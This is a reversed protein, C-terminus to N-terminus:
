DNSLYKAAISYQMPKIVFPYLLIVLAAWLISTWDTAIRLILAFAPVIVLLKFVNLLMKEPVTFQTAAQNIKEIRENLPLNRLAPIQVTSFYFRM